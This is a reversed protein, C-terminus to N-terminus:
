YINLALVSELSTPELEKITITVVSRNMNHQKLFANKNFLYRKAADTVVEIAEEVRGNAILWRPSEPLLLVLFVFVISM